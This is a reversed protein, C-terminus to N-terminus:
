GITTQGIRLELLATVVVENVKGVAIRQDTEGGVSCVDDARVFLKAHLNAFRKDSTEGLQSAIFTFISYLM